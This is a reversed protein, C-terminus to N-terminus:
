AAQRDALWSRNVFGFELGRPSIDFCQFGAAVIRKLLAAGSAFSRSPFHYHVEVLLQGIEIGSELLDPICDFETGEVDLKLVDIRRHGLREAITQLRLVEGAFQPQDARHFRQREQSYHVRGPKKPPFFNLTGNFAAIGFDHFHFNEPLTQRAVWAISEPTPDFAHVHVGFREIMAVDWAVNAGVGFSYVCGGHPILDTCVMWGHDAGPKALTLATPELIRERHLRWHRFQHKLSTRFPIIDM